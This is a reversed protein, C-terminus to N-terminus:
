PYIARYAMRGAVLALFVFFALSLQRPTLRHALRVGMPAAAVSVPMMLAFALLNVYGLSGIPLLGQQWGGAVYALAGPVAIFVGMLASTGVARHVPEGMLSLVPVSLTGGGIGMMSSIWGIAIPIPLLIKGPRLTAGTTQAGRNRTMYLASLAAVVAFVGALVRGDVQSAFWAGAVAGLLIWGSWQRALPQNISQKKLHGLASSVSTPVIIALSTAVAIHMRVSADVGLQGLVFDLMPVMIIGGGIGLLGALVGGALGALLLSLSLLFLSDM